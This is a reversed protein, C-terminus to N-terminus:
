SKRQFLLKGEQSCVMFIGGIKSKQNYEDITTFIIDVPIADTPRKTSYYKQKANLLEERNKYVAIFDLDSTTTMNNRAASGILYLFLPEGSAVINILGQNIFKNTEEDSLPTALIKKLM